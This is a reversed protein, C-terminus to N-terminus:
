SPCKHKGMKTIWAAHYLLHLTHTYIKKSMKENKMFFILSTILDKAMNDTKDCYNDQESLVTELVQVPLDHIRPQPICKLVM